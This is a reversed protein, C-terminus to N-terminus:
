AFKRLNVAKASQGDAETDFSVRQGEVLARWGAKEVASIHVFVDKGGGDPSIFGFGKTANFFSVTGTKMPQSPIRNSRTLKSLHEIPRFDSIKTGTCDMEDLSAIKALCSVDSVQTGAINLHTLHKLMRLPSLDTARTWSLDLWRLNWLSQLPSLDAVPCNSLSLVQISKLTTLPTLDRVRTGDLHLTQLDTLRSLASIYEVATRRISLHRIKSCSDAWLVDRLRTNDLTVELLDAFEGLREFKEFTAVRGRLLGEFREPNLNLIRLGLLAESLLRKDDEDRRDAWNSEKLLQDVAEEGLHDLYDQTVGEPFKRDEVAESARRTSSRLNPASGQLLYAPLQTTEDYNAGELASWRLRAVQSLDAERLDAGNLSLDFCDGSGFSLGRLDAGCLDRKPDLGALQILQMLDNTPADIVAGIRRLEQKTLKM